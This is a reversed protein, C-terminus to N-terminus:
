DQTTDITTQFTAIPTKLTIQVHKSKKDPDAIPDGFQVSGGHVALDQLAKALGSIQAPPISNLQQDQAPTLYFHQRIFDPVNKIAQAALAKNAEPDKALANLNATLLLPKAAVKAAALAADRGEPFSMKEVSVSM